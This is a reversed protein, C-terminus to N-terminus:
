INEEQLMEIQFLLKEPQSSDKTAKELEYDSTHQLL